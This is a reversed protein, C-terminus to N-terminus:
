LDKHFDFNKVIHEFMKKSSIQNKKIENKLPHFYKMAVEIPLIKKVKKFVTKKLLFNKVKSKDARIRPPRFGAGHHYILDGYVGFLVQDTYQKKNSRHLKIWDIDQELLKQHLAGGVDNVKNGHKNLWPVNGKKWDGKIQKWFGVTTVCFCPHPQIDGNNELRQIAALPKNKLSTEIFNGLPSVPFADGDIFLLIDEDSQSNFCAMDALINLKIPHSTIDETNYYDFKEIHSKVNPIKNLFAYTTNPRDLYKQLYKLQIDIWSADTWHITLVHIM